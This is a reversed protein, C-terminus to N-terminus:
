VTAPVPGISQNNFDMTIQSAFVIKPLSFILFVTTIVINKKMKNGADM